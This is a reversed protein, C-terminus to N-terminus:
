AGAGMLVPKSRNLALAACKQWNFMPMTIFDPGGFNRLNHKLKNIPM